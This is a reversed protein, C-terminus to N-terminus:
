EELILILFPHGSEGSKNLMIRSTRISSDLFSFFYFASKGM